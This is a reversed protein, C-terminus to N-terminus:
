RSLHAIQASSTSQIRLGGPSDLRSDAQWHLPAVSQTVLMDLQQWALRVVVLSVLGTVTEEGLGGAVALSSWLKLNFVQNEFRTWRRKRM